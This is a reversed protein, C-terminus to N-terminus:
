TLKFTVYYFIEYPIYFHFDVLIVLVISINSSLLKVINHLFEDDMNYWVRHNAMIINYLTYPYVIITYTVENSFCIGVFLFLAYLINNFVNDM